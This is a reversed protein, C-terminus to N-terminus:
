IKKCILVYKFIEILLKGNFGCVCLNLLCMMNPAKKENFERDRERKLEVECMINLYVMYTRNKSNAKKKWRFIVKNKYIKIEVDLLYTFLFNYFNFVLRIQVLTYVM